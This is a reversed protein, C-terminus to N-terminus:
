HGCNAPPTWQGNPWSNVAQFNDFYTAFDVTHDIFAVPYENTDQTTYYEFDGDRTVRGLWNYTNVGNVTGTGNYTFTAVPPVFINGPEPSEHCNSANFIDYRRHAAYDSYSEFQGRSDSYSNQVANNTFSYAQNFSDTFNRRIDVQQIDATFDKPRCICHSM